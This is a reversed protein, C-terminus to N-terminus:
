KQITWYDLTLGLTLYDYPLFGYGEKGWKTGWSNKFLLLKRDNDYGVALLAHGGLFKEHMNPLPIFGTERAVPSEFSEFVKVGFVFPFGRALCDIMDELNKLREYKSIKRRAGQAYADPTPKKLLLKEEYPWTSEACTGYNKLAKIGDRLTSGADTDERHEISRENYYIFLRSLDIFNSGETKELFELSGVLANATCSGIQGQDEVPSCKNRLDVKAPYSSQSKTYVLDRSDFKDLALNFHRMPMFGGFLTWAPVATARLSIKWNM